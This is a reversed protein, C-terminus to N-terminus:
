DLDFLGPFWPTDLKLACFIPVSTRMLVMHFNHRIYARCFIMVVAIEYISCMCFFDNVALNNGTFYQIVLVNDFNSTVSIACQHM